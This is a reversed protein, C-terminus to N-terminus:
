APSSRRLPKSWKKLTWWMRILSPTHVLQMLVRQKLPIRGATNQLLARVDADSIGTTLQPDSRLADALAERSPATRAIEIIRLLLPVVQKLTYHTRTYSGGELALRERLAADEAMRHMAAVMSTRDNVILGGREHGVVEVQSNNRSPTNLTIAPTGCLLSEIFVMGFSEGISCAHLFVDFANYCRRLADDGHQFPLEVVRRRVKPPLAAVIARAGDTLGAVVYYAEPKHQAVESFAEFTIPPWKLPDPRAVCGFVFADTPIGHAERFTATVEPPDPYFADPDVVNPVLVGLTPPTLPAAWRQWRWMAWRAKLLHVDTLNYRQRYDVKGFSATELVPVYHPLRAKLSEVARAEFPRVPGESHLHIVSPAWAIAQETAKIQQEEEGGTFLQIGRDRLVEARPGGGRLALVAVEHGAGAYGLSYDQAARQRGGASLNDIITLVRM